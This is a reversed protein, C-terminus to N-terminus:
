AGGSEVIRIDAPLSFLGDTTTLRMVSFLKFMMVDSNICALQMTDSSGVTIDDGM